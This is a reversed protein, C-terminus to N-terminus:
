RSRRSRSAALSALAIALFAFSSPEPIALSAAGAGGGPWVAGFSAKWAAFDDMTVSGPTLDNPLRADSNLTDRWVTYDAADVTGDDNYDGSLIYVVKGTTPSADGALVFGFQLDQEGSTDFISGLDFPTANDFTTTGDEQLETLRTSLAPSAIWDGAEIAQADLSNWGAMNLSGDDSTITYGEIEQPYATQNLVVAKGSALDVTLYITNPVQSEGTYVVRGSFNRGNPGETTFLLQLDEGAPMGFGLLQADYANGLPLTSEGSVTLSDDANRQNLSKAWNTPAATWGGGLTEYEVPVLSGSPSFVSLNDITVDQGTSNTLTMAGTGRDVTLTLKNNVVSNDVIYVTNNVKNSVYMEGSIGEGYRADNRVGGLLDNWDNFAQPATNADNDHDFSLHLRNIQAQTLESPQDRAAVSPDLQTVAALMEDFDTHYGAGGVGNLDGGFNNFIFQNQLAPDSGNRIVFGSAIAASVYDAGNQVGTANHDYQAVPYTFRTGQADVGVTAENAPLESVGVLYGANVGFNTGQLHVFTGEREGWGYNGGKTVLNVEEINNRGIDGVLIHVDGDDEANFSFNHPNRFGTAYVERLVNPDSSAAFPNSAPITYPTAVGELPNIRLMKGLPNDLLQTRDETSQQSSADGHTVYLLGYDEDGPAAHPNFRAQKIKHDQVPLKVRFLERYSAPDVQGTTHNFTWETLVSQASGGSTNGLFNHGADSAPATELYTTYFKGYGPSGADAFDPHFATSQLGDHGSSGFVARGTATQVASALNFWESPTTTTPGTEHVAFISGEQTTVFLRTDGPMTTMSIIDNFGTPLKTYPRLNLTVGSFDLSDNLLDVEAARASQNQVGISVLAAVLVLLLRVRRRVVCGCGAVILGVLVLTAPEPVQSSGGGPTDFGVVRAPHSKFLQFDAFNVIGNRDVDGQAFTGPLYMNQSIINIDTSNCVGNGNVDCILFDTFVDQLTTGVRLEDFSYTRGGFNGLGLRDAVFNFGSATVGGTPDGALSAINPNRWVTISDSNNATSLNFKVLFLNITSNLTGLNFDFAGSNNVRFGFQNTSPFDGYQSYGIQFVRNPNDQNGGNHMEFARYGDQNNSVQLLFSMYVTGSDTSQFPNSESLLRHVRTDSAPSLIRGGSEAPYGTGTYNLSTPNLTPSAGVSAFWGGSFGASGPNQGELNGIAYEPGVPSASTLFHEDILHIAWAPPALVVLVVLAVWGRVAASRARLNSVPPVASTIQM